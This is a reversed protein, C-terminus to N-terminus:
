IPRPGASAVGTELGRVIATLVRCDAVVRVDGYTGGPAAGSLAAGSLAVANLAAPDDGVLVAGLGANRACGLDATSDGVLWVDAGPAVGLAELAAHAPAADPKDRAADGAGILVRFRRHWGLHEAERRLGDGLKSSVVGLPVGLDACAALLAEAGDLPRIAELHTAYYRQRYDTLAERWEAGFLIPFHDRLSQLRERAETRTWPTVGRAEQTGVLAAHIADWSDVLTGDWDFLIARPREWGATM